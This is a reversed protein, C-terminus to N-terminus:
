IDKNEDILIIGQNLNQFIFDWKEKELKLIKYNKNLNNSINNISNIIPEFEDDNSSIKEISKNNNESSKIKNSIEVITNSISSSFKKYIFLTLIFCLIILILVAPIIKILFNTINDNKSSLRFYLNDKRITLYMLKGNSGKYSRYIISVDKDEIEILEPRNLNDYVDTDNIITGYQGIITLRLKSYSKKFVDITYQYDETDDNLSATMNLISLSRQEVRSKENKYIINVSLFIVIFASILVNLFIKKFIDKKM